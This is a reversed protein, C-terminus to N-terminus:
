ITVPASILVFIYTNIIHTIQMNRIHLRIIVITLRQFFGTLTHTIALKTTHKM